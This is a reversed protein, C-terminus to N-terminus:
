NNSAAERQVIQYILGLIVLIHPRSLLENFLSRKVGFADLRESLEWLILLSIVELSYEFVLDLVQQLM